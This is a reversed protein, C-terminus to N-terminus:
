FDDLYKQNKKNFFLLKPACKKNFNKKTVEIKFYSKKSFDPEIKSSTAFSPLADQSAYLQPHHSIKYSRKFFQIASPTAESILSELGCRQAFIKKFMMTKHCSSAFRACVYKTNTRLVLIKWTM